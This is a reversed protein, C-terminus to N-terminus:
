LTLDMIRRRPIRYDEEVKINQEWIPSDGTLDCVEANKMQNETYIRMREEWDVKKFYKQFRAEKCPNIWGRLEFAEASDYMTSCEAVVDEFDVVKAPPLSRYGHRGRDIRDARHRNGFITRMTGKKEKTRLDMHKKSQERIEFRQSSHYDRNRRSRTYRHDEREAYSISRARRFRVVIQGVEDSDPIHDVPGDVGDHRNDFIFEGGGPERDFTFSAENNVPKEIFRRGVHQGDILLEVHYWQYSNVGPNWANNSVTVKVKYKRGKEIICVYRKPSGRANIKEPTIFEESDSYILIM